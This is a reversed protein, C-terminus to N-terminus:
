KVVALTVDVRVTEGTTRDPTNSMQMTQGDKLMLSDTTRFSRFTPRGNTAAFKANDDDAYVSSEDITVQLRYRGAEDTPYAACDISTGTDQYTVTPQEVTGGRQPAPPTFVPVKNGM